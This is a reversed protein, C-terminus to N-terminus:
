MVARLKNLNQPIGPILFAGTSKKVQHCSLDSSFKKLVIKPFVNNVHVLSLKATPLNKKM